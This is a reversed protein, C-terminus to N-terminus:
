RIGLDEELKQREKWGEKSKMRNQIKDKKQSLLLRDIYSLVKKLNDKKLLALSIEVRKILKLKADSYTM